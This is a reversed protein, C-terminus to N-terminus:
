WHILRLVIFVLHSVVQCSALVGDKPARRVHTAHRRVEVTRTTEQTVIQPTVGFAPSFFLAIRMGPEKQLQAYQTDM